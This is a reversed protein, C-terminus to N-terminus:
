AANTGPVLFCGATPLSLAVTASMAGAKRVACTQLLARAAAPLTVREAESLGFRLLHSRNGQREGGCSYRACVSCCQRSSLRTGMLARFQSRGGGSAWRSIARAINGSWTPNMRGTATTLGFPRTEARKAMGKLVSGPTRFGSVNTLEPLTGMTSVKSAGNARLKSM